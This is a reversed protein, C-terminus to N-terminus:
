IKLAQVLSVTPAKHTTQKLDDSNNWVPHTNSRNIKKQSVAQLSLHFIYSCYEDAMQMILCRKPQRGSFLTWIIKMVSYLEHSRVYCFIHVLFSNPLAVHQLLYPMRQLFHLVWIFSACFSFMGSLTVGDSLGVTSCCAEQWLLQSSQLCRNRPLHHRSVAKSRTWVHVHKM